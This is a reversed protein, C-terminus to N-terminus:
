TNSIKLSSAKTFDEESKKIEGMSKLLNGRNLYYEAENPNLEIAITYDKIAEHHKQQKEFLKGRLNHDYSERNPSLEIVKNYDAIAETYKQQSLYLNGRLKYSHSSNPDLEIAKTYNLAADHFKKQSELLRGKEIFSIGAMTSSTDNLLYENIFNIIEKSSTKETPPDTQKLENLINHPKSLRNCMGKRLFNIFGQEKSSLLMAKNYDAMAESFRKLHENAIGRNLYSVYNKPEIEIAKTYEEVAEAYKEQESFISGRYFFAELCCSNLEIAKSFNIIATNFDKREKAKIGNRLLTKLEKTIHRKGIILGIIFFIIGICIHTLYPNM